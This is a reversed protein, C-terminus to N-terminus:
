QLRLLGVKKKSRHELRTKLIQGSRDGWSRRNSSGFYVFYESGEFLSIQPSM